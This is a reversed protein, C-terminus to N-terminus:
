KILNINRIWDTNKCIQAIKIAKSKETSLHKKNQYQNLRNLIIEAGNQNINQLWIFCDLLYFKLDDDSKASIIKACNHWLTERENDIEPQFFHGLYKIESSLKIGHQQIDNTNNSSLMKLINRIDVKKNFPHSEFWSENNFDNWKMISETFLFEIIILNNDHDFFEISVFKYDTSIKNNETYGMFETDTFRFNESIDIETTTKSDDTTFSIIVPNKFEIICRDSQHATKYPNEPHDSLIEVWEMNLTLSSNNMFIENCHCDHLNIYQTTNISIFKYNM